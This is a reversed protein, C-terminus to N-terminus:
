PQDGSENRETFNQNERSTKGYIEEKIKALIKEAEKEDKIERLEMLAESESMLELEIKKEITALKETETQIMKPEVYKVVVESDSSISPVQYKRELQNTGNLVNLWARIINYVQDEVRKFAEYDDKHAEIKQIAQL